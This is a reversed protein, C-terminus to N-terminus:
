RGMKLMLEPAPAPVYGCLLSYIYRKDPILLLGRQIQTFMPDFEWECNADELIGRLKFPGIIPDIVVLLSQIDDSKDVPLLYQHFVCHSAFVNADERRSPRISM